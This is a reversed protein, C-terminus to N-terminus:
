YSSSPELSRQKLRDIRTFTVRLPDSAYTFQAYEASCSVRLQSTSKVWAVSSASVHAATENTWHVTAVLIRHDATTDFVECSLNERATDVDAPELGAFLSVAYPGPPLAPLTYAVGQKGRNLNNDVFTFSPLPMSTAQRTPRADATDGPGAAVAVGGLLGCAAVAAALTLSWSSMRQGATKKM